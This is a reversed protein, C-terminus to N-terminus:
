SGLPDETYNFEKLGDEMLQTYEKTLEEAKEKDHEKLEDLMKKVIKAGDMIIKAFIHEGKTM